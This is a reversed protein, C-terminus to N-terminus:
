EAIRIEAETYRIGSRIAFSYVKGIAAAPDIVRVTVHDAAYSFQLATDNKAGCESDTSEAPLPITVSRDGALKVDFVQGWEPLGSTDLKQVAYRIKAGVTQEGRSIWEEVHITAYESAVAMAWKESPFEMLSIDKCVFYGHQLQVPIKSKFGDLKLTKLEELGAVAGADVFSFRSAGVFNHEADIYVANGFLTQGNNEDFMELLTGAPVEPTAPRELTFDVRVQEGARVTRGIAWIRYNDPDSEERIVFTVQRNGATFWEQYALRISVKGDPLTLAFGKPETNRDQQFKEYGEEDYILVPMGGQPTGKEDVVSIHAVADKENPESGKKDCATLFLMGTLLLTLMSIITKRMNKM